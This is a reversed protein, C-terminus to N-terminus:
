AEIEMIFEPRVQEVKKVMIYKGKSKNIIQSDFIVRNRIESESNEMKGILGRLVIIENRGPKLLNEIKISFKTKETIEQKKKCFLWIEKDNIRQSKLNEYPIHLSRKFYKKISILKLFKSSDSLLSSIVKYHPHQIPLPSIEM